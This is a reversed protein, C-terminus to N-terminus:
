KQNATLTRERPQQNEQQKIIEEHKEERYKAFFFVSGALCALSVGIIIILPLSFEMRGNVLQWGHFGLLVIATIVLIISNFLAMGVTEPYKSAAKM